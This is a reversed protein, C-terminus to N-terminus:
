SDHQSTVGRGPNGMLYRDAVSKCHVEVEQFAPDTLAKAIQRGDVRGLGLSSFVTMIPLRAYALSAGRIFARRANWM